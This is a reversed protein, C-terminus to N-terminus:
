MPRQGATSRSPVLAATTPQLRTCKSRPAPSVYKSTTTPPSVTLTTTMTLAPFPRRSGLACSCVPEAGTCTTHDNVTTVGGAPTATPTVPTPTPQCLTQWPVEPAAYFNIGMLTWRPGQSGLRVKYETWNRGSVPSWAVEAAGALRPWALNEIGTFPPRTDSWTPAEVGAINSDTIGSVLTGPNWEYAKQVSLYGCQSLGYSAPHTPDYKQDLYAYTCPSVIIKAGKAAAAQAASANWWYQVLTTSSLNMVNIEDWGIMQKGHNHVITQVQNMFGTYDSVSSQDGGVHIYPGPTLKALEGVVDNVYCLVYPLSTGTTSLNGGNGLNPYASIAAGSHGPMDIEPVVTIYRAAAYNVIDAYQAQTYYGQGHNSGGNVLNPWSNIYIRWGLDDTLHFHFYNLKYYAMEDIYKKVETVTYFYRGTDLMSSRYAYRSYDLVTGTAMVWADSRVTPSDIGPPLMQRITQLGHFLGAPQYAELTVLTPTVTLLYGEAGLASNTGLKLYINGDAPTSSTSIVTLGYGTAPNVKDALYQGIATVEASGPNVYIHATSPLTFTGGTSTVSVPMPIINGIHTAAAGKPTAATAGEPVYGLDLALSAAAVAVVLLLTIARRVNFNALRTDM